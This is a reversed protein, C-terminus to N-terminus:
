VKEYFKVYFAHRWDLIYTTWSAKNYYLLDYVVTRELAGIHTM